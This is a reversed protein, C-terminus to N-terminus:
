SGAGPVGALRAKLRDALSGPKGAEAQARNAGTSGAGGEGKPKMLYTFPPKGLREAIVGSAPLGTAKEVVVISGSADARAEFDDALLRSATRAAEADHWEAGSLAEALSRSKEANLHRQSAESGTREADALKKQWVAQQEALAKEAGEKDALLKLRDAEAKQEAEAQRKTFESVQSEFGRLRQYEEVTLPVTPPPTPAAQQQQGQGQTEGAGSGNGGGAAEGAGHDLLIRGITGTHIFGGVRGSATRM